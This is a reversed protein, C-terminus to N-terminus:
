TENGELTSESDSVNPNLASSESGETESEELEVIADFGFDKGAKFSGALEDNSQM